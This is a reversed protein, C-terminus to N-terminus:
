VSLDFLTLTSNKEQVFAKHNNENIKFYSEVFNKRKTELFEQYDKSM